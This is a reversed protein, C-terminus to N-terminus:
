AGLSCCCCLLSLDGEGGFAAEGNDKAEGPSPVNEGALSVLGKLHSSEGGSAFDGTLGLTAECKGKDESKLEAQPGSFGSELLCLGEAGELVSTSRQKTVEQSYRCGFVSNDGDKILGFGRSYKMLSSLAKISSFGAATNPPAGGGGPPFSDALCHSSVGGVEMLSDAGEWVSESTGGPVSSHGEMVASALMSESSSESVSGVSLVRVYLCASGGGTASRSKAGDESLWSTQMTSGSARLTSSFRWLALGSPSFSLFFFSNFFDEEGALFVARDFTFSEFVDEGFFLTPSPFSALFAVFVEM